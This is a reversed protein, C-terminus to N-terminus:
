KRLDRSSSATDTEKNQSLWEDKWPKLWLRLKKVAEVKRSSVTGVPCDLVDAIERYSLHEEESLVYVLRHTEPLRAIAENIATGLESAFLEQFGDPGSSCPEPNSRDDDGLQQQEAAVRHQEKRHADIFQNRAIRFLYAAFRGQAIYGARNKWVRLLTEQAWDRAREPDGALRHFFLLMRREYRGLLEEFAAVSQGKVLLMLEEDSYSKMSTLREFGGL